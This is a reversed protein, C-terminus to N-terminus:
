GDFHLGTAASINLDPEIGHTRVELICPQGNDFGAKKLKGFYMLNLTTTSVEIGMNHTLVLIDPEYLAHIISQLLYESLYM